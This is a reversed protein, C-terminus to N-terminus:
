PTELAAVRADIDALTSAIGPIDAAALDGAVAEVVDIAAATNSAVAVVAASQRQQMTRASIQATFAASPVRFRSM